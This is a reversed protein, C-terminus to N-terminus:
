RLIEVVFREAAVAGSSRLLAFAMEAESRSMAREIAQWIRFRTWAEAQDSALNQVAPLYLKWGERYSVM